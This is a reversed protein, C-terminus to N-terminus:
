AAWTRHLILYGLAYIELVALVFLLCQVISVAALNGWGFVQYIMAILLPYGPMREADMLNGQTVIRHTVQLYTPTDAYIEPQPHNIYYAIVFVSAAVFVFLGVPLFKGAHWDDKVYQRTRAAIERCQDRVHHMVQSHSTASMSHM